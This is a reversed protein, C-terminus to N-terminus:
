FLAVHCGFTLDLVKTSNNSWWYERESFRSVRPMETKAWVNQGRTESGAVDGPHYVHCKFRGSRDSVDTQVALFAVPATGDRDSPYPYHFWLEM